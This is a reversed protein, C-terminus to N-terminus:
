ILVSLCKFSNLAPSARRQQGRDVGTYRKKVFMEGRTEQREVTIEMSDSKQEVPLWERANLHCVLFGLNQPKFCVIVQAELGLRGACCLYRNVRLHKTVM